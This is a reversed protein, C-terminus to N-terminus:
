KVTFYWLISGGGSSLGFSFMIMRLANPLHFRTICMNLTKIILHIMHTKIIKCSSLMAKPRGVFYTMTLITSYFQEVPTFCTNRVFM